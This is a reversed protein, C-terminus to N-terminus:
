FLNANHFARRCRLIIGMNKKVQPLIYKNQILIDQSTKKVTKSVTRSTAAQLLTQQSHEQLVHIKLVIKKAINRITDPVKESTITNILEAEIESYRHSSQIVNQINLINYIMNIAIQRIFDPTTESMAVLTLRKQVKPHIVVPLKYENNTFINIATNRTKSPTKESIIIDLLTHQVEIHLSRVTLLITTAVNRATESFKNSLAIRVLEKQVELDNMHLKLINKTAIQIIYPLARNTAILQLLEKKVKSHLSSVKILFFEARNRHVEQIRGSIAIQLLEQQLHLSSRVIQIVKQQVEISHNPGFVSEKLIVYRVVPHDIRAKLGDLAKIQIYTYDSTLNKLQKNQNTNVPWKNYLTHGAKERKKPNKDLLATIILERHYAIDNVTVGQESSNKPNVTVPTKSEEHSTSYGSIPIISSLLLHLTTSVRM